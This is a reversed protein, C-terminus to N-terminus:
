LHDRGDGRLDHSLRTGELGPRPDPDHGGRRRDFFFLELLHGLKEFALPVDDLPRSVDEGVADVEGAGVLLSGFVQSLRELIGGDVRDKTRAASVSARPEKGVEIEILHRACSLQEDPEAIDRGQVEGQIPAPQWGDIGWHGDRERDLALRPHVFRELARQAAFDFSRFANRWPFCEDRSRRFSLGGTSAKAEHRVTEGSRLGDITRALDDQYLVDILMRVADVRHEGM